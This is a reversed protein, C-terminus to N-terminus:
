RKSLHWGAVVWEVTKPEYKSIRNVLKSFLIAKEIVLFFQHTFPFFLLKM